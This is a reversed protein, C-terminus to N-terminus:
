KMKAVKIEEFLKRSCIELKLSIQKLFGDRKDYWHIDKKSYLYMSVFQSVKRNLNARKTIEM